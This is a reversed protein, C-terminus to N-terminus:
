KILKIYNSYRKDNLYLAKTYCADMILEYECGFINDNLRKIFESPLWNTKYIPAPKM